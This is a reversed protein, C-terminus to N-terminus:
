QYWQAQLTFFGAYEGQARLLQEHTGIEVIRGGKLVVIRHRAQGFRPPPLDLIATRGRTM